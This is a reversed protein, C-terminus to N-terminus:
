QQCFRTAFLCPLISGSHKSDTCSSLHSPPVHQSRQESSRLFGQVDTYITRDPALPSYLSNEARIQLWLIGTLVPPICARPSRPCAIRLSYSRFICLIIQILDRYHFPLPDGTQESTRRSTPFVWLYTHRDKQGSSRLSEEPKQCSATQLSIRIYVATMQTSWHVSLCRDPNTSHLDKLSELRAVHFTQSELVPVPAFLGFSPGVIAQNLRTLPSKYCTPNQRTLTPQTTTVHRSGNTTNHVASAPQGSEVPTEFFDALYQTTGFCHLSPM